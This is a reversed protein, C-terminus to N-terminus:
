CCCWCYRGGVICVAHYTMRYGDGRNTVVVLSIWDRRRIGCHHMWCHRCSLLLTLPLPTGTGWFPHTLRYRKLNYVTGGRKSGGDKDNKITARRSM